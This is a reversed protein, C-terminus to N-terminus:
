PRHLNSAYDVETKIGDVVVYDKYVGPGDAELENALHCRLAGISYGQEGGPSILRGRHVTPPITAYLEVVAYNNHIFNLRYHYPLQARIMYCAARAIAGSIREAVPAFIHAESYPVVAPDVKDAWTWLPKDKLEPHAEMFAAMEAPNRRGANYPNMGRLSDGPERESARKAAYDVWRRIHEPDFFVIYENLEVM